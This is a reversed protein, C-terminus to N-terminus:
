FYNKEKLFNDDVNAHNFLFFLVLQISIIKM